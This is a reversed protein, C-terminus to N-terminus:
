RRRAAIHGAGRGTVTVPALRDYIAAHGRASREWSYRAAVAPGAAGLRDRLGPDALVRRM